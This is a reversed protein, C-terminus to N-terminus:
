GLKGTKLDYEPDSKNSKIKKCIIEKILEPTMKLVDVIGEDEIADNVESM